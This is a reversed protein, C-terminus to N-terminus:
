NSRIRAIESEEKAWDKTANWILRTGRESLALCGASMEETRLAM